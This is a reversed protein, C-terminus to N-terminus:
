SLVVKCTSGRWSPPFDTYAMGRLVRGQLSPGAVTWERAVVRGRYTLTGGAWSGDEYIVVQATCTPTRHSQVVHTTTPITTTLALALAALGKTKTM